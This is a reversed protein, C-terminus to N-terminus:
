GRTLKQGIQLRQPAASQVLAQSDTNIAWFEIGSVGGTIMRNVANCGGGGVGIVKIKAVSSPLIQHKKPDTKSNVTSEPKPTFSSPATSNARPKETSESPENAEASNFPPHSSPLDKNLTM